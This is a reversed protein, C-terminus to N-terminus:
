VSIVRAESVYSKCWYLYGCCLPLKQNVRSYTICAAPWMKRGLRSIGSIYSHMALCEERPSFFFFFSFFFFLFCTCAHSIYLEGYRVNQGELNWRGFIKWFTAEANFILKKIKEKRSCLVEVCLFIKNNRFNSHSLLVCSHSLKDPGLMKHFAPSIERIKVM